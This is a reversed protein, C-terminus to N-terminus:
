GGEGVALRVGVIVSTGVIVTEGVIVTVGVTVSVGDASALAVLAKLQAMPLGLELWAPLSVRHLESNVFRLDVAAQRASAGRTITVM